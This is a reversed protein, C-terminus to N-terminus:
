TTRYTFRAVDDALIITDGDRLRVETIAHTPMNLFTGNTSQQDVAVVNQERVGIWLHRKSVSPEEVVVQALTKDRGIYFGNMDVPFTRGALKGSVAQLTGWSAARGQSVMLTANPDFAAPEPIPSPVPAPASARVVSPRRTDGLRRRKRATVFFVVAAGLLALSLLLFVVGGAILLVKM